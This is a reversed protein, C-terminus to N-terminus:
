EAKRIREIVPEARLSRIMSSMLESQQVLQRSPFVRMQLRGGSREEILHGMYRLPQVTPYDENQTDAAHFQRAFASTAAMTLSLVAVLAFARPLDARYM